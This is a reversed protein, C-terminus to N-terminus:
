HAEPLRINHPYVATNMVTPEENSIGLSPEIQLEQTVHESRISHKILVPHKSGTTRDIVEVFLEYSVCGNRKRGNLLLPNNSFIQFGDVVKDGKM